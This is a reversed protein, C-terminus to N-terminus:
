PQRPPKNPMIQKNTFRKEKGNKWYTGGYSDGPAFVNLHNERTISLGFTAVLYFYGKTDANSVKEIDHRADALDSYIHM